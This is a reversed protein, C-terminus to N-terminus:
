LNACNAICFTLATRCDAALGDCVSQCLAFNAQATSLCSADGAAWLNDGDHLLECAKSDNTLATRCATRCTKKTTPLKTFCSTENGTCKTACKVGAGTAFCNSFATQYAGFCNSGGHHCASRQAKAARVCAKTAQSFPHPLLTTTTTTATTTTTTTASQASARGGSLLLAVGVVAGGVMAKALRGM